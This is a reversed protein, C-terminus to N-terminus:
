LGYQKHSLKLKAKLPAVASSEELNTVNVLEVWELYIRCNEPKPYGCYQKRKTKGIIMGKHVCKGDSTKYPCKQFKPQYTM